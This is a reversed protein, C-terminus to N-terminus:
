EGLESLSNIAVLMDRASAFRRLPLKQLAQRIIVKLAEPLFDPIIVQQNIHAFMLKGPLGSFPREGVVLEYLMIGVAYLDSAYSYNGYFREPAMYAPSGVDAAFLEKNAPILKAIGFDAISATINDRDSELLINEPKLDCHIIQRSHAYDLGSLIDRVIKLSQELSIKKVRELYDRLTGEEYYDMVLYRFKKSYELAQCNVINPHSLTVLSSFERLFSATSLTEIALEKLAVLSGTKLHRAAFVRGFQGQGILKIIEYNLSLQSLTSTNEM